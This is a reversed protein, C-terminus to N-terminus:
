EMSIKAREVIDREVSRFLERSEVQVQNLKNQYRSLLAPDRMVGLNAQAIGYTGHIAAQLLECVVLLDALLHGKCHKAARAVLRLGKHAEEMIKIPCEIAQKLPELIEDASKGFTKAQAFRVYAEGDEDRLQLLTSSSRRVEELLNQWRSESPIDSRRLEVLVIKELLALGVCAGHAAAGGGGPVPEPRALAELFSDSMILVEV